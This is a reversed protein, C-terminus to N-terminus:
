ILDLMYYEFGLKLYEFIILTSNQNKLPVNNFIGISHFKNIKQYYEFGEYYYKVLWM